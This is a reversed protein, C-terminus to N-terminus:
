MPIIFHTCHFIKLIENYFKSFLIILLFAWLSFCPSAGHYNSLTLIRVEELLINKNCSLKPFRDLFM